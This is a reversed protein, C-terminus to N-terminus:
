LAFVAIVLSRRTPAAREADLHTSGTPMPSIGVCDRNQLRASRRAAAAGADTEGCLQQQSLGPACGAASGTRLLALGHSRSWAARVALRDVRGVGFIEDVEEGEEGGGRAGCPLDAVTEDADARRNRVGEVVEDVAEVRDRASAIEVRRDAFRQRREAGAM